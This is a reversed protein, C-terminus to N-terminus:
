SPPLDQLPLSQQTFCMYKSRYFSVFSTTLICGFSALQQRLSTLVKIAAVAFKCTVRTCITVFGITSLDCLTSRKSVRMLNQREFQDHGSSFAFVTSDSSAFTHM